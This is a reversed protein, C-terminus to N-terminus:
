TNETLCKTSLPQVCRVFLMSGIFEHRATAQAQFHGSPQLCLFTCPSTKVGFGHGTDCYAMHLIDCWSCLWLCEGTEHALLLFFSCVEGFSNIRSLCFEEAPLFFFLHICVNEARGDWADTMYNCIIRWPNWACYLLPLVKSSLYRRTFDHCLSFHTSNLRQILNDASSFSKRGLMWFVMKEVWCEYSVSPYVLWESM